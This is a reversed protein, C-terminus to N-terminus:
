IERYKNFHFGSYMKFNIWEKSWFHTSAFERVYWYFHKGGDVLVQDLSLFFFFFLTDQKLFM